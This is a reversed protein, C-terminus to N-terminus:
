LSIHLMALSISTTTNFAVKEEGDDATSQYTFIGLWSYEIGNVQQTGATELQSSYKFVFINDTTPATTAAVATYREDIKASQQQQQQGLFDCTLSGMISLFLGAFAVLLLIKFYLSGWCTERFPVISPPVGGLGAHLLQDHQIM